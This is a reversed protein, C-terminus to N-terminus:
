NIVSVLGSIFSDKGLSVFSVPIDIQNFCTHAAVASGYTRNIKIYQGPLLRMSGTAFHILKELLLPSTTEIFEVLWPRITSLDPDVSLETTIKVRDIEGQVKNKVQTAISELLNNSGQVYSLRGGSGTLTLEFINIM